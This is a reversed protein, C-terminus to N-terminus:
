LNRLSQAMNGLALAVTKRSAALNMRMHGSGGLGYTHGANLHVKANKVLWEEFVTEPSVPVESAAGKGNRASALDRAGIKEMAASVDLWALYTGQPKVFKVLPINAAIYKDAFDLTGNIYAVV